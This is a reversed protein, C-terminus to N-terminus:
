VTSSLLVNDRNGIPNMRANCGDKRKKKNTEKYELYYNEDLFKTCTNLHLTPNVGNKLETVLTTFTEIKNRNNWINWVFNSTLFSNFVVM